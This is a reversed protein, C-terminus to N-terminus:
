GRGKGVGESMGATGSSGARLKGFPSGAAVLWRVAGLGGRAGLGVLYEWGGGEREWGSGVFWQVSIRLCHVSDSYAECGPRWHGDGAEGEEQGREEGAEAQGWEHEARRVVEAQRGEELAQREDQQAKGSGQEAGEGRGPTGGGDSRARGDDRRGRGPGLAMRLGPAGLWGTWGEM